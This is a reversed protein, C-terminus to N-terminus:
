VEIAGADYIKKISFPKIDIFPLYGFEFIGMRRMERKERDEDYKSYWRCFLFQFIFFNAVDQYFLGKGQLNLFSVTWIIQFYYYDHGFVLGFLLNSLLLFITFVIQKLM